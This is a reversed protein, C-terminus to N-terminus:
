TLLEVKSESLVSATGYIVLKPLLDSITQIEAKDYYWKEERHIFDDFFYYCM